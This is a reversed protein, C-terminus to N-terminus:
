THSADRALRLGQIWGLTRSVGATLAVPVYIVTLARAHDQWTPSIGAARLRPTHLRAVPRSSQRRAVAVGLPPIVMLVAWLSPREGARARRVADWRNTHWVKRLFPRAGDITPHRVVARGSYTLRADRDVARLVFDFDGGSPLVDTFGGLDDFFEREIFLNATVARSRRVAHEQDLFMDITLLSWVTPPRPPVLTVEGAVVDSRELAALGEELWTSDPLCDSDCFALVRGRAVEVARNRAAYANLRPGRTVRVDGNGQGNAPLEGSSGDDGIVVEFRDHPLTQARLRALLEEIGEPNDRVPVIVSVLPEGM